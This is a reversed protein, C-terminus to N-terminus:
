KVPKSFERFESNLTLTLGVELYRRNLADELSGLYMFDLIRTPGDEKVEDVGTTPTSIKSCFDNSAERPKFLLQQRQRMQQQQRLENEAASIHPMSWSNPLKRKFPMEGPLNAGPLNKESEMFSTMYSTVVTTANMTVVAAAGLLQEREIHPPKPFSDVSIHSYQQRSVNEM